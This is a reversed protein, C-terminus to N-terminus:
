VLSTIRLIKPSLTCEHKRPSKIHRSVTQFIDLLESECSQLDHAM